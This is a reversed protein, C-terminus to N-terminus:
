FSGFPVVYGTGNNRHEQQLWGKYTDVLAPWANGGQEVGRQTVQEQHKQVAPEGHEKWLRDANHGLDVGMTVIGGLWDGPEGYREEWEATDSWRPNHAWGTNGLLLQTHTVKLKSQLPGSAVVRAGPGSGAAQGDSTAVVGSGPGSGGGGPGTHVAGSAPANWGYNLSPDGYNPGVIPVHRGQDTVLAGREDSSNNTVRNDMSAIYGFSATDPNYVIGDNGVTHGKIKTM